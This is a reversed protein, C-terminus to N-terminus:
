AGLASSSLTCHLYNKVFIKVLNIAPIRRRGGSAHLGDNFVDFRVYLKNRRLRGGPLVDGRDVGLHMNPLYFALSQVFDCGQRGAASNLGSL